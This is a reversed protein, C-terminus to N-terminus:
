DRPTPVAIPRWGANWIREAVVTSTPATDHLEALVSDVIRALARLLAEDQEKLTM